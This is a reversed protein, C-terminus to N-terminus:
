ANDKEHREHNRANRPERAATRGSRRWLERREDVLVEILERAAMGRDGRAVANVRGIGCEFIEGGRANGRFDLPQALKPMSQIRDIGRRQRRILADIAPDQLPNDVAPEEDAIESPTCSRIVISDAGAAARAFCAAAL